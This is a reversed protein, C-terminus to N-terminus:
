KYKFWKYLEKMTPKKGYMLIGVRYIKAAFKIVLIVSIYLVALSVLTEWLPIEAPIRVMMVIPSTFPIMSCWFALPGDPNQVSYMGVFLSFIFIITVPMVFQQTDQPNDVASAFMAFLAAYFLYGGIFFLLFFSIIYPWNVTSLLAIYKVFGGDPVAEGEVGPFLMGKAMYILGGMVIWIFLQLFGTLGIGIIKGMMLDFPRVSSVMVEVIRNTKEEIVGQMVMAGYTLIFMYMLMVLTFGIGSALEISTEKEAGDADWRITNVSVSKSQMLQQITQVVEKDIPLDKTYQELRYEKTTESLVNNIYMLLEMPPQKESYITAAQPNKSLNDTIELLGFIEGGAKPREQGATNELVEFHIYESSQFHSAYIGAHDIIVVKKVDTDKVQSILLPLFVLGAFLFPILITLIIFSKKKVRSNFERQIILNMSKM